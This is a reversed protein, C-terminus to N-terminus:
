HFSKPNLLPLRFLKNGIKAEFECIDMSDEFGEESVLRELVQNLQDVQERLAAGHDGLCWLLSVHFSPDSYFAPLRFQELVSDFRKVVDTLQHGNVGLGVFTRTGEENVFVDFGTWFVSFASMESLAKGASSVFADIWHHRLTVVRTVSVHPDEIASFELHGLSTSLVRGVSRQLVGWDIDSGRAYAYSAWNGRVHPFSRLRGQHEEPREVARPDVHAAFLSKV